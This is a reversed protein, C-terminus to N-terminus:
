KSELAVNTSSIIRESRRELRDCDEVIRASPCRQISFPRCEINMWDMLQLLREKQAHSLDLYLQAEMRLTNFEFEISLLDKKGYVLEYPTFRTTTKWTTNNAWTAEVLRDVWDKRSSSVVKTLIGELPRNTVEVKIQSWSEKIGLSTSYTERLFEALKEELAVKIAKTEVWKTLYNTCVIIYQKQKSPPSIPGVFDM